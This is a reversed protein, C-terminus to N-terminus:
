TAAELYNLFARIDALYNKITNTSCKEKELLSKFRGVAEEHDKKVPRANSIEKLPNQLIWSQSLCFKCFLRLSSLRRNTTSTPLNATLYNKYEDVLKQNLYRGILSAEDQFIPLNRTRLSLEMWALFHRLDSQYNKITTKSVGQTKLYLAFTKPLNM